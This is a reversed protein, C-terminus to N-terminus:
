ILDSIARSITSELGDKKSYLYDADEDSVTITFKDVGLRASYNQLNPYSSLLANKLLNDRESQTIETLKKTLPALDIAGVIVNINTITPRMSVIESICEAIDCGSRQRIQVIQEIEVKRLKKELVAVFAVEQDAASLKALTAASKFAITSGTKGWDVLHSYSPVIDNLRIFNSITGTDSIGVSKACEKLSYGMRIARDFLQGCEYPSLPRNKRHTGVSLILRQFEEQSLGKM